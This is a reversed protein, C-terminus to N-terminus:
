QGAAGGGSVVGRLLAETKELFAEPGFGTAHTRITEPDWPAAECRGVADLIADPTEEHFFIGTQGEVVTELAGGRGLAVVPKGCAMAELPTIGFDEEGAVVLARCGAYLDALAQDDVRGAFRVTPGAMSQLRPLEPGDGAVLLYKGARTFAEVVLATNKYALLRTVVLHYGRDGRSLHFRGTEVPPHIVSSELGYNRRIRARVNESNAIIRTHRAAAELDLRRLHPLATRLAARLPALSVEDRLYQEGQWLFRPTNHLYCVSPVGPAIRLFKAFTSCSIWVIDAEVPPFSRFAAPYLLLYKKFHLPHTVLPLQQMWSPRLEAGRFEEWLTARAVASTYLPARPWKRVMTAVVREAGGMQILYDHALAPNM